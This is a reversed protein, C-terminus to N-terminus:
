GDNQCVPDTTFYLAPTVLRHLSPVESLPQDMNIYQYRLRWAVESGILTQIIQNALVTTTVRCLNNVTLEVQSGEPQVKYQYLLRPRTLDVLTYLAAPVWYVVLLVVLNGVVYMLHADEELLRVTWMWATLWGGPLIFYGLHHVSWLSGYITALDLMMELWLDPELARSLKKM